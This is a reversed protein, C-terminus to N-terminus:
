IPSQFYELFNVCNKKLTLTKIDFIKSGEAELRLIASKAECIVWKEEGAARAVVGVMIVVVVRQPNYM